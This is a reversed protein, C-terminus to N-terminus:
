VTCGECRGIYILMGRARAADERHSKGNALLKEVTALDNTKEVLHFLEDAIADEASAAEAYYTRLCYSGTHDCRIEPKM